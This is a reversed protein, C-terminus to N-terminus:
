GEHYSGQTKRKSEGNAMQREKASTLWVVTKGNKLCMINKRTEPDKWM